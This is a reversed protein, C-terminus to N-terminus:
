LDLHSGEPEVKEVICSVRGDSFRALLRDGVGVNRVTRVVGGPVAEVISYGRALTALPSLDELSGVMHHVRQRKMSLRSLFERQIHHHLQRILVRGQRIGGLPSHALLSGHLVQLRPGRSAALYGIAQMLRVNLDDIRQVQRQLIQRPDPSGRKLLLIRQRLGQLVHQMGHVLRHAAMATMKKLEDLVPAVAEAAASPTPARYDAAFDALTVDIEHGIASVIPVHSRGIARVVVEENFCWLDEWSGGGRTVILVEVERRHNADEIAQAIRLSAGDGQVPVPYIIVRMIPCRRHLVTLVDRIAAGTLSTVIGIRNPLFPLARKRSPDFLGEEALRGKLQEFALQLAGVGKPEIAVVLVQYDGRPEYVTLRGRVIVQLGDQVSFRVNRVTSRFAVARIQSNADKLTFYLHGSAPLRVNSVEGELWFDSFDNELSTRIM